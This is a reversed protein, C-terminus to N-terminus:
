SSASPSLTLWWITLLCCLLCEMGAVNFGQVVPVAAYINHCRSSSVFTAVYSALVFKPYKQLVIVRALLKIQKYVNFVVHLKRVYIVYIISVVVSAAIPEFHAVRDHGCLYLYM